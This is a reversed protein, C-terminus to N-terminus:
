GYQGIVDDDIMVQVYYLVRELSAAFSGVYLRHCTSGDTAKSLDSLQKRHLTTLTSIIFDDLSILTKPPPPPSPRRHTLFLALLLLFLKEDFRTRSSTIITKIILRKIQEPNRLAFETM